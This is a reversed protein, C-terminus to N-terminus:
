AGRPRSAAGLQAARAGADAKYEQYSGVLANTTLVGFIFVADWRDGILLSLAGAFILLYILPSTFQHAFIRLPGM